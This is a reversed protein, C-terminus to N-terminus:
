LNPLFNRTYHTFIYFLLAAISDYLLTTSIDIHQLINGSASATGAKSNM